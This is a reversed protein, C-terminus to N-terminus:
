TADAGTREVGDLLREMARVPVRLLRGIRITPIEGREAARYSGDRSLGFYKKGAEPVTMTLPKNDDAM